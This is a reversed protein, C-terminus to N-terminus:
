NLINWLLLDIELGYDDDAAVTAAINWCALLLNEEVDYLQEV